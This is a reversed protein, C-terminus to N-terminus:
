IGAVFILQERVSSFALLGALGIAVGYPVGREPSLLRAYWSTAKEDSAAEDSASAYNKRGIRYLLRSVVLMLTVVGGALGVILLFSLLDHWGIWVACAAMLKVDGGGFAGFYFLVAGAMFVAAGAGAHLALETFPVGGLLATVFYGITLVISVWNPIEFRAIDSAAAILLAIPFIYTLVNIM